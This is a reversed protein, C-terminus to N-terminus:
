NGHGTGEQAPTKAGAAPANPETQIPELNMGCISCKGPKDSVINPHMPCAYKAAKVTPQAAAVKQEPKATPQAQPASARPKDEPAKSCGASTLFYMGMGAIIWLALVSRTRLSTKDTAM